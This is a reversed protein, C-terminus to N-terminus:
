LFSKIDTSSEEGIRDFADDLWQAARERGIDRLQTLFEWSTNMKSVAGLMQMIDDAAISHILMRKMAGEPLKGEDILRTAFAIARMEGILSSNFSIENIRNEIELASRPVDPRVLPNVHVIIVDQSPSAYILPFIAPNGMFGGDWYAEGDIEVAQFVQPLCASAMVVDASVDKTRFVHVKGSRVNTATLFLNTRPCTRLREFDVTTDLLARLPNINLPNLQYPSWFRTMMNFLLFAPTAESFYAIPLAQQFPHPGVYSSPEGVKRWFDALAARGGERGGTSVGHALVVANVAGASAGSIGCIDLRGNELLYDLVGWAFAGHAGGGQLAINVIKTGNRHPRRDRPRTPDDSPM